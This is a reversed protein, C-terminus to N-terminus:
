LEELLEFDQAGGHRDSGCRPCRFGEPWRLRVLYERCAEETAFWKEFELLSAPYDELDAAM